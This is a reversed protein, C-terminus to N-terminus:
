IGFEEGSKDTGESDAIDDVRIVDGRSFGQFEDFIKDSILNQGEVGVRVGCGGHRRRLRSKESVFGPSFSLNWKKHM